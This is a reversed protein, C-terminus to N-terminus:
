LRWGSCSGRRIRHRRRPLVSPASPSHKTKWGQHSILWASPGHIPRAPATGSPQSSSSTDVLARWRICRKSATEDSLAGNRSVCTALPFFCLITSPRTSRVARQPFTLFLFTECALVPSVGDCPVCAASSACSSAYLHQCVYVRGCAWHCAGWGSWANTPLGEGRGGDRM